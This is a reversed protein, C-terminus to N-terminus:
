GFPFNLAFQPHAVLPLSIMASVASSWNYPPATLIIANVANVMAFWNLFCGYIFGAFLIVPFRLMVLPRYVNSAFGSQQNKNSRFPALKQWYTRKPWSSNNNVREETATIIESKVDDIHTAAPRFAMPERYYMTEEMCFFCVVFGFANLLASTWLVWQWGFRDSIFGSPVAGWQGGYLAMTYLGM